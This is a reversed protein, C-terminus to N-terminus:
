VTVQFITKLSKRGPSLPSESRLEHPQGVNTQINVVRLFFLGTRNGLMGKSDTTSMFQEDKSLYQLLIIVARLYRQLFTINECTDTQQPSPALMLHMMPYTM